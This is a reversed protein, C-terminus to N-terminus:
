FHPPMIGPDGAALMKQGECIIDSKVAEYYELQTELLHRTQGTADQLETHYKGIVIDVAALRGHVRVLPDERDFPQVISHAYESEFEAAKTRSVFIDYRGCGLDVEHTMNGSFGRQALDRKLADHEIWGHIPITVFDNAIPSTLKGEDPSGLLSKSEMEHTLFDAAKKLFLSM